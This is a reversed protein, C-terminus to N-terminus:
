SRKKPVRCYPTTPRCKGRCARFRNVSTFIVVTPLAARRGTRRRYVAVLARALSRQLRVLRKGSLLDECTHADLVKRVAKDVHAAHKADGLYTVLRKSRSQLVVRQLVYNGYRFTYGRKAWISTRYTTAKRPAAVAVNAGADGLLLGGATLTASVSARLFDRRSAHALETDIVSPYSPPSQADTAPSIKKM